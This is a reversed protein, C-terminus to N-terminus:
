WPTVGCSAPMAAEMNPRMFIKARDSPPRRESQLLARNPMRPRRQDHQIMWVMSPTMHQTRPETVASMDAGYGASPGLYGAKTSSGLSSHRMARLVEHPQVGSTPLPQLRASSSPLGYLTSAHPVLDILVVSAIFSHRPMWSLSMRIWSGGSPWMIISPSHVWIPWWSSQMECLPVKPMATMMTMMKETKTCIASPRWKPM